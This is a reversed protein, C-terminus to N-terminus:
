VCAGNSCTTTGNTSCDIPTKFPYYDLIKTGCYYENLIISDLCYDTFIYLVSEDDGTVGGQLGQVIGGDSDTCSDKPSEDNDTSSSCKSDKTQSIGFDTKTDGDNDTGDDCQVTGFESTDSYSTCGTDTPYDNLTDGDNEVFDDCQGDVENTDTASTCGSDGGSVRFDALTDRDSAEDSGNDCILSPSTETLENIGSCGPDAPFDILGDGDDDVGNDCQVHTSFVISASIIAVLLFVVISVIKAKKNGFPILFNTKTNM